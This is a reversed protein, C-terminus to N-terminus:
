TRERHRELYESALIAAEDLAPAPQAPRGGERDEMALLRRWEHRAEAVRGSAALARGLDLQGMRFKPAFELLRRYVNIADELRGAEESLQGLAEFTDPDCGPLGVAVEYAGIAAELDGMGRCTDGLLAHSVFQNPRMRLLVKCEALAESWQRQALLFDVLITRLAYNDPESEVSIRAELLAEAADGNQWLTVAFQSRTRAALPELALRKRYIEIADDLRGQGRLHLAYFQENIADQKESM